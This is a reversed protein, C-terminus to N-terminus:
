CVEKVLRVPGESAGWANHTNGSLAPASSVVSTIEAGLTPILPTRYTDCTFTRRADLLPAWTDASDDAVPPFSHIVERMSDEASMSRATDAGTKDEGVPPVMTTATARM